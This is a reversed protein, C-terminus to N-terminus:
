PADVGAEVVVDPAGELAADPRNPAFGASWLLADAGLGAALLQSHHRASSQGTLSFMRPRETKACGAVVPVDADEVPADIGTQVAKQRDSVWMVAFLM